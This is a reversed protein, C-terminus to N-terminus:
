IQVPRLEFEAIIEDAIRYEADGAARRPPRTTGVPLGLRVLIAKLIILGGAGLVRQFLRLTSRYTQALLPLDGAAWAAMFSTYLEPAINVDMSSTFGKAGLACSDIARLPSGTWVPFRDGVAELLRPLYMNNQLHTATLGVVRDGHDAAITALTEPAIEYGASVHSTLIAPVQTASLVTEYFTRLEDETPAYSHGPELPGVQVATVGFDSMRKCFHIAQRASRPETGMAYVSVESGVQNVTLQALHDVEAISLVNGEATGSSVIWLDLGAAALRRVQASYVEENINNREDFPTLLSAGLRLERHPQPLRTHPLASKGATMAAGYLGWHTIILVKVSGAWARRYTHKVATRSITM